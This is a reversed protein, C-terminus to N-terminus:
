SSALARGSKPDGKDAGVAASKNGSSRYRRPSVGYHRRFASTFNAPYNYGVAYGVEAIGREGADLLEMAREMRCRLLYGCITEHLILRFLTKLKTKNLGVQRALQTVQLSQHFHRAIYDRVELIKHVDKSAIARDATQYALSHCDNLVLALMQLAVAELYLGRFAAHIRHRSDILLRGAQMLAASLKMRFDRSTAGGSFLHEMSPPIENNALGVEHTLLARQCTLVVMRLNQGGAIYYGGFGNGPIVTLSLEPGTALLQRSNDRMGGSVLLRVKFFDRGGFTVWTDRKYTVDTVSVTMSASVRFFDHYGTGEQESLYYRIGIAGRSKLFGSCDSKCATSESRREAMDALLRDVDANAM